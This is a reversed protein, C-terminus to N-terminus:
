RWGRRRCMMLSVPAPNVQCPLLWRLRRVCHDFSGTISGGTRPSRCGPRPFRSRSSASRTASGRPSRRGPGAHPPTCPRRAYCGRCRAPASPRRERPHDFPPSGILSCLSRNFRSRGAACATPSRSHPTSVPRSGRIRGSARRSRSPHRLGPGSRGCDSGGRNRPDTAKAAM